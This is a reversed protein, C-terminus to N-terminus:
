MKVINKIFVDVNDRFRLDKELISKALNEEESTLWDQLEDENDFAPLETCYRDSYKVQKTSLKPPKFDYSVDYYIIALRKM